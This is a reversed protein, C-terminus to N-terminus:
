CIYQYTELDKKIQFDKRKGMENRPLADGFIIAAPREVSLLNNRIWKKIENQKSDSSMKHKPVIFAKLRNGEEPTMMRVACTQVDPHQNIKQEVFEPQVNIGAIQVSGDKRKVPQFRRNDIWKLNDVTDIIRTDGSPLKKEFKDQDKRYNLFPLLRYPAHPSQRYGIGSTESSGFIETIPQIGKKRLSQILEPPCLATSTLGQLNSAKVQYDSAMSDNFYKWQIPISVILDNTELSSIMQGISKYRFDIVPVALIRPLIVTFLFGYIHHCPVFSVIRRSNQFLNSFFRVEQLLEVWQHRIDKELGTSGSTKFTISGHNKNLSQMIVEVWQGIESKRLLFEEIGTEYLHFMQNVYTALAILEVSDIEFGGKTLKTHYTWDSLSPIDNISGRINKLVSAIIDCVIRFVDKENLKIETYM